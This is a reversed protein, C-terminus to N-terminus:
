RTAHVVVRGRGLEDWLRAGPRRWWRKMSRGLRLPAPVSWVTEVREFGVDHLARRLWATNPACWDDDDLFYRLAPRSTWMHATETELVLLGKCVSAVRELALLPHRMHYLVGLFLVVDFTGVRDPSIDLVDIETSEVRSRLARHAFEFGAKTGWGPGSWCYWDTALVRTAGRRECEFSYAGDWSGIDLCSKGDLSDPLQLRPIKSLTDDFGPTYRGGGLDITHFWRIDNMEM